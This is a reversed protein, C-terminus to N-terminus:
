NLSVNVKIGPKQSYEGVAKGQLQVTVYEVINKGYICAKSQNAAAVM